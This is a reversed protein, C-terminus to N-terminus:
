SRNNKVDRQWVRLRSHGAGTDWHVPIHVETSIILRHHYRECACTRFSLFGVSEVVVSQRRIHVGYKDAAFSCFSYLKPVKVEVFKQKEPELSEGDDLYLSGTAFGNDDLAVLLNWLNARTETTTYGPQQLAIISGGRIHLPIHELPAQITVNEGSKVGIVEKLTYWDYWRTGEGIGPFVGKVATSGQELVPTVLLSPGLLFQNDVARLSKDNPFEWAVARMM